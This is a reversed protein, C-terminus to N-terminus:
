VLKNIKSLLFYNSKEIIRTCILFDLNIKFGHNFVSNTKNEDFIGRRCNIGSSSLLRNENKRVFSMCETGFLSINLNLNM